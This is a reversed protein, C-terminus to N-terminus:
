DPASARLRCRVDVVGEVARATREALPILHEDRVEGTLTAVGQTVTVKVAKRSLPFLRDVVERRIESVLDDDSRLFVELLDARSVIGVLTGDADVVPLRKVRHEAM